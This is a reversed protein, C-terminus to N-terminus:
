VRVKVVVKHVPGPAPKSSGPPTAPLKPLHADHPFLIIFDGADLRVDAGPITRYFAVDRDGDYPSTEELGSVKSVRIVESGSLVFQIDIYNRHAEYFRGEAGETTVGQFLAFLSAGALEERRESFDAPSLGALYDLGTAIREGLGAYISRNSISDFVM